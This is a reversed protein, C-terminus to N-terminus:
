AHHHLRRRRHGFGGCALFWFAVLALWPAGSLVVFALALLGGVMVPALVFTKARDPHPHRRQRSAPGKGAPRRIVPEAAGYSGPLDAFLPQLDADFKAAWIGELREDYESKTLRGSAYHESLTSAASDREADGIRLARDTTM